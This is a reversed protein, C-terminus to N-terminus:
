LKYYQWIYMTLTHLNKEPKCICYMNFVHADEDLQHLQLTIFSFLNIDLKTVCYLTLNLHLLNLTFYKHRTGMACQGRELLNYLSPLRRVKLSSFM